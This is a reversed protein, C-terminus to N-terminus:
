RHESTLPWERSVHLLYQSSSVQRRTDRVELYVKGDRYEYVIVRVRGTLARDTTLIIGLTELTCVVPPVGLSTLLKSTQAGVPLLM